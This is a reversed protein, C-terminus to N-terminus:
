AGKSERTIKLDLKQATARITKLVANRPTWVDILDGEWLLLSTRSPFAYIYASWFGSFSLFKDALEALAEREDTIHHGPTDDLPGCKGYKSRIAALIELQHDQDSSFWDDAVLLIESDKRLVEAVSSIFDGRAVTSKPTAFQLNVERGNSHPQHVIGRSECWRRSESRTLLKM